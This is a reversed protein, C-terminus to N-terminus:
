VIAAHVARGLENFAINLGGPGEGSRELEIELFVALDDFIFQLSANGNLGSVRHFNPASFFRDAVAQILPEYSFSIVVGIDNVKFVVDNFVKRAAECSRQWRPSQDLAGRLYEEVFFYGEKKLMTSGRELMGTIAISIYNYHVIVGLCICRTKDINFLMAVTSHFLRGCKVFIHFYTLKLGIFAGEFFM